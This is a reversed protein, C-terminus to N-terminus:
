RDAGVPGAQAPSRTSSGNAVRPNRSPIRALALIDEAIDRAANPRGQQRAARAMATRAPDDHLLRALEEALRPVFGWHADDQRICVAGGKRALAAANRYQHDDAAHPFPVLISARGIAALEAVTAAGARAVVLDAEALARAVDDIFPVVTAREFGKRQYAARVSAERDRGCQHLVTVGTSGLHGLADPVGENLASAGQSGGMVLLRPPANPVYPTPVFGPRLPVGLSRRVAPRFASAAEEWAIYARRAFPSLWRNTLGVVSNPELVALPVGLMAAALAVPGAAYGGVSLVARPRLARVLGVAKGMARIASMTGSMARVVGGGKIPRVDILELRWGREPIVRAEVGRSTGCFVPEVEALSLLADAVAVGPFVHGGTGGGAVLIRASM